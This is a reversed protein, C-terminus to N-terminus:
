ELRRDKASIDSAKLVDKTVSVRFVRLHQELQRFELFISDDAETLKVLEYLKLSEGATSVFPKHNSEKRFKVTATQARANDTCPHKPWPWGPNDFFVRGGFPSQYFFVVKGCVPCHANPNV